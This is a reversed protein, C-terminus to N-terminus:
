CADVNLMVKHFAEFVFRLEIIYSFNLAYTLGLLFACTYAVLEKPVRSLSSTRKSVRKIVLKKM